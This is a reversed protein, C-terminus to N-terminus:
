QCGSSCLVYEGVTVMNGTNRSLYEVCPRAVMGSGLVLIKKGSMNVPLDFRSQLSFLFPLQLFGLSFIISVTLLQSQVFRIYKSHKNVFPEDLSFITWYLYSLVGTSALRSKLLAPSICGYFSKKM